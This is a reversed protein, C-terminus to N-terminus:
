RIRVGKTLGCVEEVESTLGTKSCMEYLATNCSESHVCAGSILESDDFVQDTLKGQGLSM